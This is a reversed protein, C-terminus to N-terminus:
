QRGNAILTPGSLAAADKVMEIFEQRYGKSDNGKANQALAAIDAYSYSGVFESKRLLTGFYSVAAAFRFDETTQASDKRVDSAAIPYELLNSRDEDPKKYRIKLFALESSKDEPVEVKKQETAKQYRLDEQLRKAAETNTLVIEYLATVTHGTGIEGADIADNNFDQKNLRRNDYGILRYEAVQQPNFEIQLKVDKAVVEMNGVLDTQLVKRAEKFSDLYFYNGNGKDALQEMMGDKLNGTGVGITTLTIGSRRKEEILRMLDDHSTVGVNFDGDTMLIVRNVGGDIRNRQAIEYAAMIGGAGNTGGGSSLNEIANLIRFKEAGNTADLAVGANGAYTVISIKDQPRMHEVLVPLSRKLLPLKNSDTMSGSVDVLLVLNWGKENPKADRAKVGLKLLFKEKELPSPAIEYSLTFPKEYQVPYAYDFYNIFEEIRIAEPPPLQGAGIMRRVNAYSATDVDISFTSLPEDRVLTRKNESVSLYSENTPEQMPRLNPVAFGSIAPAADAYGADQKLPAPPEARRYTSQAQLAGEAAANRNKKFQITPENRRYGPPIGAALKDMNALAADNSAWQDRDSARGLTKTPVGAESSAEGLYQIKASPAQAAALDNMTVSASGQEKLERTASRSKALEQPVVPSAAKVSEKKRKEDLSSSITGLRDLERQPAAEQSTGSNAFDKLDEAKPVVAGGAAAAPASREMEVLATKQRADSLQLDFKDPIPRNTVSLVIVLTACTAISSYVLRRNESFYMYLREFFGQQAPSGLRDMVKVSFSPHLSHGERAIHRETEVIKSYEEFSIRLASNNELEVRLREAEDAALTGELYDLFQAEFDEQRM